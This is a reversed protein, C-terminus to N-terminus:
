PKYQICAYISKEYGSLILSDKGYYINVRDLCRDYEILKAQASVTIYPVSEAIKILDLRTLKVTSNDTPASQAPQTFLSLALLGTLIAIFLNKYNTM